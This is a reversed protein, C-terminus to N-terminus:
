GLWKWLCRCGRRPPPSSLDPPQKLPVNVEYSPIPPSRMSSQSAKSARWSQQTSTFEAKECNKPVLKPSLPTVKDNTESTSEKDEMGAYEKLFSQWLVDGAVNKNALLLFRDEEDADTSTKPSRDDTLAVKLCRRFEAESIWDGASEVEAAFGPGCDLLRQKADERLEHVLSEMEGMRLLADCLASVGTGPSGAVNFSSVLEDAEAASVGLRLHGLLSAVTDHNALPGAGKEGTGRIDFLGLVRELKLQPGAAFLRERMRVLAAAVVLSRPMNPAVPTRSAGLPRPPVVAQGGSMSPSSPNGLRAILSHPLLRGEGDKDTLLVLWELQCPTLYQAAQMLTMYFEQKSVRGTSGGSTNVRQLARALRKVDVADLVAAEAPMGANYAAEAADAFVKV